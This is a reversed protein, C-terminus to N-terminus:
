RDVHTTPQASTGGQIRETPRRTGGSRGRGERRSRTSHRVHIPDTPSDKSNKAFPSRDPWRGPTGERGLGERTRGSWAGGRARSKMQDPPHWHCHTPTSAEPCWFGWLRLGELVPPPFWSNNNARFDLPNLFKRAM